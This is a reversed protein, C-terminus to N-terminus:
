LNVWITVHILLERTAWITFFGGAICPVWTQNRTWSSERFFPIAVWELIRAQLIKHISSGLPYCDMPDCLTPCSQAVLMKVNKKEDTSWRRKHSFLAGYVIPYKASSFKPQKWQKTIIFILTCNKTHFTKMKRPYM